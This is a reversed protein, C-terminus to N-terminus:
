PKRLIGTVIGLIEIDENKLIIPKMEANAPQLRVGSKDIYFKKMTVEENNIKVVVSEGNEASSRREMIVIDGDEIYEEIMSNGKVRLAFTEKKVMSVPVSITDYDIEMQIPEGASTWGLLPIEVFEADMLELPDTGQLQMKQNRKPILYALNSM